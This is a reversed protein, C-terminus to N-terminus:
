REHRSGDNRDVVSAEDDLVWSPNALFLVPEALGIPNVEECCFWGTRTLRGELRGWELAWTGSRAVAQELSGRFRVLGDLRWRCKLCPDGLRFSRSRASPGTGNEIEMPLAALLFGTLPLGSLDALNKWTSSAPRPASGTPSSTPRPATTSAPPTSASWGPVATRWWCGRRTPASAPSTCTAPRAWPTTTSIPWRAAWGTRDAGGGRGAGPRARGGVRSRGRSHGPLDAAAAAAEAVDIVIGPLILRDLPISAADGGGEAFHPPADLHTGGHEATAFERAAYPYGGPTPGEALTDLRFGTTDTPWCLTDSAYAHSLDVTRWGAVAKPGPPPPLPPPQDDSPADTCAALQVALVAGVVLGWKM